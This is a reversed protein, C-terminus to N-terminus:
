GLCSVMEYYINISQIDSENSAFWTLLFQPSQNGEVDGCSDFEAGSLLPRDYLM